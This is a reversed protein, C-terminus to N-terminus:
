DGRDEVSKQKKGTIAGSTMWKEANKAVFEKLGLGFAIGFAVAVGWAMTNAFIQLISVDIRLTTLATVVVIYYLLIKLARSFLLSFEVGFEGGLAGVANGVLDSVIVGVVLILLGGVLHPLYEFVYRVVYSAAEINLLDVAALITFLYISWRILQDFFVVSSVGSKELARGLATKKAVSDLGTKTFARTFAKGSVRGITWGIILVMIAAVIQPSMEIIRQWLGVLFEEIPIM